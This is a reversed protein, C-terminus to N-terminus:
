GRQRAIEYMLVGAAVSVNLSNIKGKMPLSIIVDSRERILRSVGRGESGVVLAIAGKLSCSYCPEGDMDATYIWVGADKLKEIETAINNVKAVLMHELAGASSKEVAYTLGSCRRKPIIVGHAGVCEATRIIAGLNYPDEVGDAIIIFPSENKQEALNLIEQVTASKKAGVVAIVGQHNAGSCMADLAKKATQKVVINNQRAQAVIQRLSGTHEGNQVLISDITRGSKLAEQVANRGIVYNKEENKNNDLFM